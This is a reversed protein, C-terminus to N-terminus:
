YNGGGRSTVFLQVAVNAVIRGLSNPTIEIEHWQGRQIKGEADKALYPILDLDSESTGVGPVTNGDVKLTVATPTPGEYIGYELPHVHPPLNLTHEHDIFHAHSYVDHEHNPLTVTAGDSTTMVAGGGGTAMGRVKSGGLILGGTILNNGQKVSGNGDVIYSNGDQITTVVGGGAAVGRSYCHWLNM